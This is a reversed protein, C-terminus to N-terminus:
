LQELSVVVRDIMRSRFTSWRRQSIGMELIRLACRLIMRRM